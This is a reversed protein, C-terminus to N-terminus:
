LINELGYVLGKLHAVKKVALIVGPMFSERNITDHRITLTQGLGGFIVEQHAVLGPLRVSHIPVDAGEGLSEKMMEATKLATGSPRDVKQPHHMEIIEAHRMHKAADKAYQMMLVAGIAFNPAILCNVKNKECLKGIEMLDDKSIGTTGIVAHAGSTLITRINSIVSEPHTFDIVVQAQHKKIAEALNDGVDLKAALKLDSEKEVAKVTEQGMKGKAGNVIVKIM